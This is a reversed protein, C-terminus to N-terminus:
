LVEEIMSVKDDVHPTIELNRAGIALNEEGKNGQDFALSDLIQAMVKALLETLEPTLPIATCRNLRQLFFHIREFLYGLVEYSAVVDRV